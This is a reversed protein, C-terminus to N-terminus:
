RVPQEKTRPKRGVFDITTAALDSKSFRQFESAIRLSALAELTGPRVCTREKVLQFGAGKALEVFEPARLRNQYQLSNNWFRWEREGYQLFNVFSISKDFFAYHDNCGVNHMALGGPKLVRFSEEMLARISEKPVHELVSNSYALDISNSEIGTARGDAPAFYEIHSKELLEGLSRSRRLEAIRARITGPAEQALGAIKDSHTELCGLLEFVTNRELLRVIDFTAVSGAGSLIFCFPLAPHWGTGIELLRAGRLNFGADALYEMSLAWDSVKAGVNDDFNRMGGCLRQLRTNLRTGGPTRSICKQIIGKTKWHM